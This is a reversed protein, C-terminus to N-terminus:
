LLVRRFDSLIQGLFANFRAAAAGDIVRHDWTLSLPLMLRPVFQKGDWVPEMTSKCVGLIAVEPANIIPTFYKGGIGGLSSITFTAGTMEAPSLKGERAKKALEGMEQSIQLVGKKDCDRIVPVMLGNPTDAAFGIHWYNKYVIADGDLSSNFEPYKKLAAVCAKILFALMTVKVSANIGSKAAKENELNTSVRFVELDTIDADDHNTVAPIMIANRLLNAGSIKKIRGMEKREIPGFKAFDVKPWPILGLAAGDGGSAAPAKAAQAKTQATGSMVAQTFAQVDAETIRGKLGSGKVEALPVGLERAFKRVSPSAHPLGVTNGGPAHAPAAVAAAAAAVPTPAAAPASAVAASAAPAAAVTAAVPAAAAVAGELIALLDGINVTDGVKVKLEKLVGAHSSPIEMSAKDSEVTILSQEVKITDGPKVMVEIVAVDKFDGIDPVHVQVPGSAAPAAAAAVAVPAVAPAAAVPTAAAPAAASASAAGAAEVVLVVSGQKVKDGLAVRMEKVVGATSSPIEM